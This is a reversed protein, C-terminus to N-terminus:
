AGSLVGKAETLSSEEQARAEKRYDYNQLLYDCEKKLDEKYQLVEKLETSESKEATTKKVKDSQAEAKAKEKTAVSQVDSERKAKSDALFDEYFKQSDKEEFEAEAVTKDTEDQLGEIMVIIKNGGNTKTKGFEPAKPDEQVFSGPKIEPHYFANMRDKAIQLVEKTAAQEQVLAQYEEHEKKRTETTEAVSKDLKAIGNQIKEIDEELSSVAEERSV